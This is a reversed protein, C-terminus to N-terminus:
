TLCIKLTLHRPQGASVATLLSPHGRSPARSTISETEKQMCNKCMCVYMCKYIHIHVGNLRHSLYIHLTQSELTCYQPRNLNKKKVNLNANSGSIYISQM